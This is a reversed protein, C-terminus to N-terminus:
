GQITRFMFWGRMSGFDGHFKLQNFRSEFFEIERLGFTIACKGLYLHGTMPPTLLSALLNPRLKYITREALQLTEAQKFGLMKSYGSM